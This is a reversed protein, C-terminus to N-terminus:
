KKMIPLGEGVVKAAASYQTTMNLYNQPVLILNTAM